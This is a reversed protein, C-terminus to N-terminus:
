AISVILSGEAYAVHAPPIMEGTETDPVEAGVKAAVKALEEIRKKEAESAKWSEIHDYKYMSRGPRFEFLHGHYSVKEKDANIALADKVAEAKVAKRMPEAAKEARSLIAYADLPDSVGEAVDIALQAFYGEIQEITIPTTNM